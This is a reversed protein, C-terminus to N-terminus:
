QLTMDIKIHMIILLLVNVVTKKVALYSFIVYHVKFFIYISIHQEMHM